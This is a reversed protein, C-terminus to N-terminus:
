IIWYLSLPLILAEMALLIYTSPEQENSHLTPAVVPGNGWGAGAQVVPISSILTCVLALVIVARRRRM